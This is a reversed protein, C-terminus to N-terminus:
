KIFNPFKCPFSASLFLFVYHDFSTCSLGLYGSNKDTTSMGYHLKIADGGTQLAPKRMYTHLRSATCSYNYQIVTICSIICYYWQNVKGSYYYYNTSQGKLKCIKEVLSIENNMVSILPSLEEDRLFSRIYTTLVKQVPIM